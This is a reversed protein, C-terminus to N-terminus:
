CGIMSLPNFKHKKRYGVGAKRNAFMVERRVARQICPIAITPNKFMRRSSKTGIRHMWAKTNFITRPDGPVDFSFLRRDVFSKQLESARKRQAARQMLLLQRQHLQFYRSIAAKLALSRMSSPNRKQQIALESVRKRRAELEAGFKLQFEKLQSLYSKNVQSLPAPKAELLRRQRELESFLRRERTESPTLREPEKYKYKNNFLSM